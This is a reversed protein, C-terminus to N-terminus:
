CAKSEPSRTALPVLLQHPAQETLDVPGQQDGLLPLRLGPCGYALPAQVGAPPKGTLEGAGWHPNEQRGAGAQVVQRGGELLIQRDAKVHPGDDWNRGETPARSHGKPCPSRGVAVRRTNM